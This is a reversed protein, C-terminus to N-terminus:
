WRGPANAMRAQRSQWQRLEDKIQTTEAQSAALAAYVGDLDGAIQDLFGYVETPDLGRGGSRISRFRRDRVQWSRLPVYSASRYCAPESGRSSRESRRFCRFFRRLVVRM